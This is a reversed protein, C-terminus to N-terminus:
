ELQLHILSNSWYNSLIYQHNWEFIGYSVTSTWVVTVWWSLLDVPSGSNLTSLVQSRVALQDQSSFVSLCIPNIAQNVHNQSLILFSASFASSILSLISLIFFSFPLTDFYLFYAYPLKDNLNGTIKNKRFKRYLNSWRLIYLLHAMQRTKGNKKFKARQAIRCTHTRTCRTSWM